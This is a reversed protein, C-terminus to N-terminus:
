RPMRTTRKLGLPDYPLVEVFRVFDNTATNVVLVSAVCM